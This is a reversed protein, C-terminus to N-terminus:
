QLPREYHTDMEFEHRLWAARKIIESLGQLLLLAFGLPLMLIVPWRILGGASQSMEGSHLRDLFMPWSYWIMAVVVPLLFFVLGLLDVWVKRQTAYRAYLLDVRVHENVRLVQSAGLMVCAAFLYWQIELWGNSGLNFLYRVVANGASIFCSALAAWEAIRGFGNNLRDIALALSVLPKM